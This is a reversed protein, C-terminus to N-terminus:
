KKGRALLALSKLGKNKDTFGKEMWRVERREESVMRVIKEGKKM